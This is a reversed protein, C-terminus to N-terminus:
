YLDYMVMTHVRESEESAETVQWHWLFLLCTKGQLLCPATIPSIKRVKSFCVVYYSRSPRTFCSAEGNSRLITWGFYFHPLLLLNFNFLSDRLLFLLMPKTEVTTKPSSTALFRSEPKGAITTGPPGCVIHCFIFNTILTWMCSPLLDQSTQLDIVSKSQSRLYM